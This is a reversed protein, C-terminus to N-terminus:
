GYAAAARGVTYSRGTGTQYAPHARRVALDPRKPSSLFEQRQRSELRPNGM